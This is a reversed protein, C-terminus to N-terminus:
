AAELFSRVEDGRRFAWSMARTTFGPVVAGNEEVGVLGVRIERSRAFELVSEVAERAGVDGIMDVAMKALLYRMIPEGHGTASVGGFANAYTGAGIVASDGVRGPIKMMMGGTSTAVAILGADDVAAAGVTGLGLDGTVDRLRPLWKLDEGARFRAINKEYMEIRRDSRLDREPLGMRRAFEDAGGGALMIHDTREMVLRAVAVPNAAARVAAVAGCSLDSLMISADAEVDGALNLSSGLGANFLPNDEMSVVAAEVADLATGGAELREWGTSLAARLGLDHDEGPDYDGAGGHVIISAV